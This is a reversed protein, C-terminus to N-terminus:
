AFIQSPGKIEQKPQTRASHKGVGRQESAHNTQITSEALPKGGCNEREARWILIKNDITNKHITEALVYECDNGRPLLHAACIVTDDSITVGMTWRDIQQQKASTKEIHGIAMIAPSVTRATRQLMEALDASNTQASISIPMLAPLLALVIIFIAIFRIRFFVIPNLPRLNHGDVRNTMITTAINRLDNAITTM